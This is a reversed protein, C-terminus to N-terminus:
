PRAARRHPRRGGAHRHHRSRRRLRARALGGAGRSRRAFRRRWPSSAPIAAPSSRSARERRPTRSRRRPARARRAITPRTAARATARRCATSIPDTATFRRRRRALADAAEPTLWRADGPGLGVVALEGSVAAGGLGSRAGRCFLACRRRTQAALPVIKADAMTGREVYLARPLRGSTKLARRLKALNRGLKMVVAADVDALRRALEAEPLTAPLVTFVDDGQAMPARPRGAARCAPSAPSSKPRIAPPSGCM